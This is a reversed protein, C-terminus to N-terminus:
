QPEVVTLLAHVCWIRFYEPGTGTFTLHAHFASRAATEVRNSSHDEQPARADIDRALNEIDEVM